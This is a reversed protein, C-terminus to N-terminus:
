LFASVRRYSIVRGISVAVTERALRRFSTDDGAAVITADLGVEEAIEESRLAHYADTVIVVSREDQALQNTTALLSEYTDGGDVVVVIEEEAIGANRLYQFAAFGETFTDGPQNAGTTVVQSAANGEWLELVTVLRRELVPSPEGNYQAAGLVVISDGNAVRGQADVAASRVSLFTLMVWGVALVVILALVQATRRVM